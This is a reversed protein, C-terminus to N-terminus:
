TTNTFEEIIAAAYEIGSFFAEKTTFENPAHANGDALSGGTWVSPRGLIKTFVYDPGSAPTNPYIVPESDYTAKAARAVIGAIPASPMTRSPELRGLIRMEVDSFGNSNLHERLKGALEDPNQDFALRFDLKVFAESPLVTKPGVGTYGTRFGCITSTPDFLLARLLDERKELGRVFSGLGYHEKLKAPDLPISPLLALQQSAPSEVRNYWGPVLIEDESSRISNLAWVLRWAPNPVIAGRSSHLDEKAKRCSLEVYLIGKLGLNLRPRGSEDMAGDFCVVSDASLLAKNSRAFEPLNPSSIEEEGEFLLKVRVDSKACFEGMAQAAFICALVNNKSDAAGRAIVRSGKVTPRFPHSNWEEIPEPPQVDYHGYLLLTRKPNSSGTEGYLFPDAGKPTFRRTKIRLRTMLGHVLKACDAGGVGQASVSPQALLRLFM